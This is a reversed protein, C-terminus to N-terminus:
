AQHRRLLDRLRLLGQRSRSKVTGLPIGLKESIQSQSLGQFYAIELVQRETDPIQALAARLQQQDEQQSAHDFPTASRSSAATIRQFRQLINARGSSVRLRDLARSRTYTTLYSGVSGRDPDYQRRQWFNVFVEQTLDEAEAPNSLMRLALTYVLSAYRDYLIALAETHGAWLRNILDRDSIKSEPMSDPTSFPAM